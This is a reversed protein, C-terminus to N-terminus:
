RRCSPRATHERMFAEEAALSLPYRQGGLFRTVEPDNFWAAYREVDGMELARLNVLKGEIM